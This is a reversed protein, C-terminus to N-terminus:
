TWIGYNIKAQHHFLAQIREQFWGTSLWLCLTEQELFCRPSSGGDFPGMKGKLDVTNMINFVSLAQCELFQLIKGHM